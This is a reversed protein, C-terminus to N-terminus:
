KFKVNVKNNLEIKLGNTQSMLKELQKKDKEKMTKFKKFAEPNKMLEDFNLNILNIKGNKVFSANTEVIKGNPVVDLTVKMGKIFQMMQSAMATDAGGTDVKEEMEDLQDNSSNDPMNIVIEATSGPIFNFTLDDEKQEAPAMAMPSSPLRSEPNENISLKTIDKFSYVAKFGEWNEDSIKKSSVFKVGEGLEPAKEKLEKENFFSFQESESSDTKFSETLQKMMGSFAKSLLVTEEVTGSGNKNVNVVTHVQLCGSFLFLGFITLSLLILKKM